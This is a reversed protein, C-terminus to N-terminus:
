ATVAKPTTVPEENKTTLHRRSQIALIVSAALALAGVMVHVVTAAIMARVPQPADKYWAIRTVYAGFGLAMETMYLFLLTLASQRIADIQWHRTLARFVTWVLLVVTIGALLVHPLLRGANHRLAAGLVLQAYVACATAFSLAYLSPKEEAHEREAQATFARGTFMAIMVAICFFAQALAAHATSVSRPLSNLIAVGGLVGQAVVMALAGWALLRMWRRRDARTIWVALVITLLGVFQALMRHTHEFQVGGSMEPLQYLSGFTTPWDPVALGADNSTVMAGATVLLFTM